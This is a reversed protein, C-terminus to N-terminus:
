NNGYGKEIWENLTMKQERDGQKRNYYDPCYCEGEVFSYDVHTDNGGNHMYCKGNGLHEVLGKPTVIWNRGNTEKYWWCNICRGHNM